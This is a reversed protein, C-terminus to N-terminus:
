IRAVGGPAEAKNGVDLTTDLNKVLINFSSQFINVIKLNNSLSEKRKNLSWNM